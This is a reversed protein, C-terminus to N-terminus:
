SDSWGTITGVVKYDFQLVVAVCSFAFGLFRFYNSVSHTYCAIELIDWEERHRLVAVEVSTGPVLRKSLHYEIQLSIATVASSKKALLFLQAAQFAVNSLYLLLSLPELTRNLLESFVYIITMFFELYFMGLIKPSSSNLERIGDRIAWKAPIFRDPERGARILNLVQYQGQNKLTILIDTYIIIFSIRTFEIHICFLETLQPVSGRVTSFKSLSYLFYPVSWVAPLAVDNFRRDGKQLLSQIKGRCLKLVIAASMGSLHFLYGGLLSTIDALSSSRGSASTSFYYLTIGCAFALFRIVLLLRHMNRSSPKQLVDTELGHVYCIGRFISDYFTCRFADHPQSHARRAELRSLSVTVDPGNEKVGDTTSRGHHYM